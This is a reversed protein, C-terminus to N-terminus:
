LPTDGFRLEFHAADLQHKADEIVDEAVSAINLASQIIFRKNICGRRTSHSFAPVHTPPGPFLRLFERPTFNM